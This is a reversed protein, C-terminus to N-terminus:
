GSVEQTGVVGNTAQRKFTYPAPDTPTPLVLGELASILTMNGPNKELGAVFKARIVQDLRAENTSGLASLTMQYQKAALVAERYKEPASIAKILVGNALPAIGMPSLRTCLQSYLDQELTTLTAARCLKEVDHCGVLRRLFHEVRGEVIIALVDPTMSVLQSQAALPLKRPDFQYLVTLSMNFGIHDSTLTESFNFDRAYAGLHIDPLTRERYPNIHFYGPGELRHFQEQRMVPVITNDPAFRYGLRKKFRQMHNTM